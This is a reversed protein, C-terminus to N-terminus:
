PTRTSLNLNPRKTPQHGAAAPAAAPQWHDLSGTAPGGPRGPTIMAQCAQLPGGTAPLGSSSSDAVRARPVTRTSAATINHVIRLAANKAEDPHQLDGESATAWCGGQRSPSVIMRLIDDGM